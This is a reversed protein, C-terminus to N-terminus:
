VETRPGAGAASDDIPRIDFASMWDSASLDSQDGNDPPQPPPTSGTSNACFRYEPNGDDDYGVICSSADYGTPDIYRLPNNLAYAYMDWSQPNTPDAVFNGLPDPTIFRGLSSSYYRAKFNDNGTESDREQGTFRM